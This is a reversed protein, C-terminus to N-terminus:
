VAELNGPVAAGLICPLYINSNQVSPNHMLGIGTGIHSTKYTKGVNGTAIDIEALYFNSIASNSYSPISTGIMYYKNAIETLYMNEHGSTGISRAYKVNGASDLRMIFADYNYPNSFADITDTFGSVLIDKNFLAYTTTPLLDTNGSAEFYIKQQLTDMNENFWWMSAGYPLTSPHAWKFWHTSIFMSDNLFTNTYNPRHYYKSYYAKHNLLTFDTQNANGFIFTSNSPSNSYNSGIGWYFLKNKTNTFPQLRLYNGSFNNILHSTITTVTDFNNDFLANLCYTKNADLPAEGLCLVFPKNKFLDIEIGSNNLDSFSKFGIKTQAV